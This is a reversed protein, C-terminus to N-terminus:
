RGTLSYEGSRCIKVRKWNRELQKNTPKKNPNKQKKEM